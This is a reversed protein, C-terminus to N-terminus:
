PRKCDMHIKSDVKFKIFSTIKSSAPIANFRYIPNHPIAIKFTNFKGLWLCKM